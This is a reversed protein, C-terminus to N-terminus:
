HLLEVYVKGVRSKKGVMKEFKIEGLPERCVLLFFKCFITHTKFSNLHFILM